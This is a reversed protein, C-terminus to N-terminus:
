TPMAPRRDSAMEPLMTAGLMEAWLNTKAASKGTFRRSTSWLPACSKVPLVAVREM